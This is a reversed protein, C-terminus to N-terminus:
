QKLLENTKHIARRMKSYDFGTNFTTEIIHNEDIFENIDLKCEDDIVLYPENEVKNEKLWNLIQNGRKGDRGTKGVIKCLILGKM